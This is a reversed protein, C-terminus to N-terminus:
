PELDEPTFLLTRQRYLEDFSARDLQQIEPIRRISRVAAVTSNDYPTDGSSRALTVDTITGDPTMSIRITCSMGHRATAPKIWQESVRRAILDDLSAILQKQQSEGQARRREAEAAILEARAKAKQEEAARQAAEQAERKRKAEAERQKKAQEEAERQKKLEAERKQKAETQRKAEAEKAAKEKAAKAAAEAQAKKRAKEQEAARRAAAAEVERQKKQEAERKTEAAKAAVEAQQKAAQARKEQETAQAQRVQEAERQKKKRELQEMEHEVAKTKEAEGTIKEPNPASKPQVAKLQYVTAQIIPRAPPIDPTNSFSIFLLAFIILHLALTYILPWFWAPRVNSVESLREQEEM